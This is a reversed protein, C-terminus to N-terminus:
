GKLPNSLMPSLQDMPDGDGATSNDCCKVPPGEQAMDRIVSKIPDPSSQYVQVPNNKFENIFEPDFKENMLEPSVKSLDIGDVM